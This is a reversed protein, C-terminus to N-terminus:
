STGFFRLNLIEINPHVTDSKIPLFAGTEGHSTGHFKLFGDLEYIQLGNRLVCTRDAWNAGSKSRKSFKRFRYSTHPAPNIQIDAKSYGAV